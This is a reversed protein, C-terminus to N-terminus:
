CALKWEDASRASWIKPPFKFESNQRLTHSEFEHHTEGYESELRACEAM